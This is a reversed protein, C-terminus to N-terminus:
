TEEETAVLDNKIRSLGAQITILRDNVEFLEALLAIELDSKAEHAAYRLLEETTLGNLM